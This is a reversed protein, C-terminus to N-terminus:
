VQNVKPNLENKRANLSTILLLFCQFQFCQSHMNNEGFEELLKVCM